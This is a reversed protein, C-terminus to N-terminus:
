ETQSALKAAVEHAAQRPYDVKGGDRVRRIGDVVIREDVKVGSKLVFQDDVENQVVIERQHAVDDKDVVYVYWKNGVQFTARQPIVLADNQPRSIIVTGNQGHRLEGDPNPFDARFAITGTQSNFNGAIASLEGAHQFKSGNALMLEFNVQEKDQESAAAHYELYRVEPMNFYVRVQSNDSLTTLTEGQEVFSGLQLRIRDVVGDFPAKISFEAPPSGIQFLLDGSKVTQGARVPVSDVYGSHPARVEIHRHANIHGVYQQTLTVDKLQVSTLSVQPTETRPKATSSNCASLALAILLVTLPRCSVRM